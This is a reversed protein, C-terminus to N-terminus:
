VFGNLLLNVFSIFVLVVRENSGKYLVTNPSGQYIGYDKNSATSLYTFGSGTPQYGDSSISYYNQPSVDLNTYQIKPETQPPPQQHVDEIHIQKM